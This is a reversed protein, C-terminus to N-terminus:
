KWLRSGLRYIMVRRQGYAPVYRELLDVQEAVLQPSAIERRLLDAKYLYIGDLYTSRIVAFRLGTKELAEFRTTDALEGIKPENILYVLKERRYVAAWDYVAIGLDLDLPYAPAGRLYNKLINTDIISNETEWRNLDGVNYAMLTARDVPPIGQSKTDRYQHLRLTCTLERSRLRAKIAKLFAFYPTRTRATWDCDLQLEPFGEGLLDQALVLVDGALSDLLHDPQNLFVENTIFIVPILPPLGTTDALQLLAAPEARGNVWAVDFAKVYLRECHHGTLLARAVSDPALTTQWHYFTTRPPSDDVSGAEANSCGGPLTLVWALVLVFFITGTM